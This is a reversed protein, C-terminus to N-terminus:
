ECWRRRRQRPRVASRLRLLLAEAEGAYSSLKRPYCGEGYVTRLHPLILALADERQATTIRAAGDDPDAHVPDDGREVTRVYDSLIRECRRLTARVDAEYVDLVREVLRLPELSRSTFDLEKAREVFVGLLGVYFQVCGRHVFWFTM